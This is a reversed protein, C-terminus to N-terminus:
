VNHPHAPTPSNPRTTYVQPQQIPTHCRFRRPDLCLAHRPSVAMQLPLYRCIGCIVSFVSTESSRPPHSSTKQSSGSCEPNPPLPNVRQLRSFPPYKCVSSDSNVQDARLSQSGPLRGGPLWGARRDSNVQDARLSQSMVVEVNQTLIHSESTPISRILVSPNRSKNSLWPDSWRM